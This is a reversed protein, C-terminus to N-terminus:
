QCVEVRVDDVYMWTRGGVAISDNYTEFYVVVSRGRYAALDFAPAKHWTAANELTVMVKTLLRYTVPELLLVRQFDNATDATGPRYWFRLTASGSAPLAVTQYASSITAGPPLDEGDLTREIAARHPV